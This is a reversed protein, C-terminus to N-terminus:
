RSLLRWLTFRDGHEIPPPPATDRGEAVLEMVKTEVAIEDGKRATETWEARVVGFPSTEDRWVRGSIETVQEKAFPPDISLQSALRRQKCAHAKGTADTTTGEGDPTSTCTSKLSVKETLWTVDEPFMYWPGKEPDTFLIEKAVFLLKGAKEADMARPILFSLRGRNRSGLWKVPSIELWVCPTGAVITGDRSAIRIESVTPEAEGKKRTVRYTAWSGDAPIREAFIEWQACAETATLMLAALLLLFHRM